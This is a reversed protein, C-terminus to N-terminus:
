SSFSGRQKAGGGTAFPFLPRAGNRSTRGDCTVARVWNLGSLTDVGAEFKTAVGPLSKGDTTRLRDTSVELPSLEFAARFSKSEPVRALFFLYRQNLQLPPFNTVITSVPRGNVTASGSPHVYRIAVPSEADEKTWIVEDIRLTYYTLIWSGAPSLTPSSALPTAILAVDAGCTADTLTRYESPHTLIPDGMMRPRPEFETAVTADRLEGSTDVVGQVLNKYVGVDAPTARTASVPPPSPRNQVAAPDFGLGAALLTLPTLFWESSRKM